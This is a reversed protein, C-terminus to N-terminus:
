LQLHQEIPMNEQLEELLIAWLVGAAFPAM